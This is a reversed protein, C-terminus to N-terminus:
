CLAALLESAELLDPSDFGETFGNYIDELLRRADRLKGQQRWLRAMSIAARLELSIAWQKHSITLAQSFCAEAEEVNEESIELLCVGKLRHFESEFFRDDKANVVNLAENVRDFANDFQEHYVLAECVPALFLIMAGSMIINVVELSQQAQTIGETQGRMAQTWGYSVSGLELWFPFGHQLSLAMAEQALLETTELQKMWRKVIAAACLSYGLSHPHNVERALALAQQSVDEAQQPFGLLWLVCALLSGSTVCVNEGFQDVMPEHHSPHYFSMSQEFHTRAANPNGTMFSSNGMAHHALQLHLMDGGQEALGLLIEALELSHAHGIRSSSSLWMGWLAKFLGSNDDVSERLELARTFAQGAEVSGYGKAAILATGLSIHLEFELSDREKDPSLLPLGQLCSNFHGIAELNASSRAARQGAKIWCEISQRIEGGLSLHRALLEPRTAAVEPFDSHLAQAIRQHAAKRDARTQSQYAAEQVLMHKFQCITENLQVILGAAQLVSLNYALTESDCPSIKRLLDLDFERGFTAALQATRKADGMGDLRMSLLDHLTAPIDAQNDLTTMKAVEEAFLPVGDVREVIRQMDAVPIDVRLAAIMEAMEEGTLPALMLASQLNEKWPPNFDPRATFVALIAGKSSQGVLLTLLELTSPDIWHMDEVILLVPQQEALALLTSLLIAITQEKQKQPSFGPAQDYGCLPLSLLQALLPVAEQASTPFYLVSVDALLSHM